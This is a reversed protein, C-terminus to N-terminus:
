ARRSSPRIKGSERAILTTELAITRYPGSRRRIVADRDRVLGLALIASAPVLPDTRDGIPRVLARVTGRVRDRYPNIAERLIM